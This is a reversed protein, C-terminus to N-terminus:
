DSAHFANGRSAIEHEVPKRCKRFRRLTESARREPLVEELVQGVQGLLAIGRLGHALICIVQEAEPIKQSWVVTQIGCLEAFRRLRKQRFELRPERRGGLHPVNEVTEEPIQPLSPVYRDNLGIDRTM